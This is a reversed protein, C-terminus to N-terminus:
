KYSIIRYYVYYRGKDVKKRHQSFNRYINVLPACINNNSISSSEIVGIEEDYYLHKNEIVGGCATIDDAYNDLDGYHECEYFTLIHKQM